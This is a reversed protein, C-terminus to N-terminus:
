DRPYGALGGDGSLFDDVIMATADPQTVIFLHGDDILALRANPIRAALLRANFTHILPDDTGSLVLTPMRLTHLWHISTWGSMALLQLVYGYPTAGKMAAAHEHILSPDKRFAGGYLEGAISRMYGRDIYRRPGAMKALASIKGPIMVVGPSTAVLILRRTADPYQRAFQQALGGGWSVGAVDVPTDIGLEALLNFALKALTGPRYPRVPEPSGGIGPVDFILSGLGRAGLARIFPLALELNAGIGNFMLLMPRGPEPKRWAIALLQDGVQVKRFSIGDESYGEHEPKIAIASRPM